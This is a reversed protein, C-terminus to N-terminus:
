EKKNHGQRGSNLGASKPCMVSDMHRHACLVALKQSVSSLTMHSTMFTRRFLFSSLIISTNKQSVVCAMKRLGRISSKYYLM